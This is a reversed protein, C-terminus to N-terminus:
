LGSKFIAWPLGHKHMLDIYAIEGTQEVVSNGIARHLDEAFDYGDISYVMRSEITRPEEWQFQFEGQGAPLRDDPGISRLIQSEFFKQARAASRDSGAHPSGKKTWAQAM